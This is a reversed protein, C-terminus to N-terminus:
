RNPGPARRGGESSSNRRFSHGVLNVKELDSEQIYSVVSTVCDEHTVGLRTAGPGHGALTPAHARHGKASLNRIVDQWAWGGHWTGHILVFTKSM